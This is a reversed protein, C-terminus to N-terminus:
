LVTGHPEIQRRRMKRKAAARCELLRAAPDLAFLSLLALRAGSRQRWENRLEVKTLTTERLREAPFGVSSIWASSARVRAMASPARTFIKLSRPVKVASATTVSRTRGPTTEAGDTHHPLSVEAPAFAFWVVECASVSM